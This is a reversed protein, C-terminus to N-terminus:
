RDSTVPNAPSERLWYGQLEETTVRGNRDTDIESFRETLIRFNGRSRKATSAPARPTSRRPSLMAPCCRVDCRVQLTPQLAARWHEREKM